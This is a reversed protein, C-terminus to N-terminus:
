DAMRRTRSSSYRNDGGANFACILTIPQKPYNQAAAQVTLTFMLIAASAIIRSAYHKLKNRRESTASTIAASQKFMRM